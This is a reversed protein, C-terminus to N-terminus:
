SSCKGFVPATQVTTAQQKGERVDAVTAPKVMATLDYLQPFWGGNQRLEVRPTLPHDGPDPHIQMNNPEVLEYRTMSGALLPGAQQPWLLSLAGGTPQRVGDRIKRSSYRKQAAGAFSGSAPGGGSREVTPL